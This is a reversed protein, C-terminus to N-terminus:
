ISNLLIYVKLFSNEIQFSCKDNDKKFSKEIIKEGLVNNIKITIDGSFASELNINLIGLSPNPHITMKCDSSNINQTYENEVSNPEIIVPVIGCYTYCLNMTLGGENIQEIPTCDQLPPSTSSVLTSYITGNVNSVQWVSQCCKTNGECIAWNWVSIIAPPNLISPILKPAPKWCQAETVRTEILTVNRSPVYEGNSLMHQICAGHIKTMEQPSCIDKCANWSVLEYDVIPCQPDTNKKYRYTYSVECPTLACGSCDANQCGPCCYFFFTNTKYNPNWNGKCKVCLDPNEGSTIMDECNIICPTPCPEPIIFFTDYNEWNYVDIGNIYINNESNQPDIYEINSFGIDLKRRCCRTGNECALNTVPDKCQGISYVWLWTGNEPEKLPGWDYEHGIVSEVRTRFNPFQTNGQYDVAKQKLLHILAVKTIDSTEIQTLQCNPGGDWFIGAVALEYENGSTGTWREYYIITYCCGPKGPYDCIQHEKPDGWDSGCPPPTVSTWDYSAFLYNFNIGLLFIVLTLMLKFNFIKKM